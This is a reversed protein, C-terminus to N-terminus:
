YLSSGKEVTLNREKQVILLYLITAPKKYDLYTQKLEAIVNEEEIVRIISLAKHYNSISM